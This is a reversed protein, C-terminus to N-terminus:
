NIALGLSFSTVWGYLFQKYQNKVRQKKNDEYKTKNGHFLYMQRLLTQLIQISTVIPLKIKVGSGQGSGLDMLIQQYVCQQILKDLSIDIRNGAETAIINFLNMHPLSTYQRGFDYRPM